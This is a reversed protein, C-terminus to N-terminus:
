FPAEDEEAPAEPQLTESEGIKDDLLANFKKRDAASKLEKVKAVGLTDLIAKVDAVDLKKEVVADSAKMHLEEVTPATARPKRQKKPKEEATPVKVTEQAQEQSQLNQTNELATTPEGFEGQPANGAELRDAIKSAMVSAVHNILDDLTRVVVEENKSSM